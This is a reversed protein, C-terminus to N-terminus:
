LLFWVRKYEQLQINKENLRRCAYTLEKKFPYDPPHQLVLTSYDGYTKISANLGYFREKMKALSTEKYAPPLFYFSVLLNLAELYSILVEELGFSSPQTLADLEKELRGAQEAYEIKRSFDQFTTEFNPWNGLYVSVSNDLSSNDLSNNTLIVLRVEGGASSKLACGKLSVTEEEQSRSLEVVAPAVYYDEKLAGFYLPRFDGALSIKKLGSFQWPWLGFLFHDKRGAPVKIEEPENLDPGLLTFSSVRAKGSMVSQLFGFFEKTPVDYGPAMFFALPLGKQAYLDALVRAQAITTSLRYPIKGEPWATHLQGDLYIAKSDSLLVKISRVSRARSILEKVTGSSLSKKQLKGASSIVKEDQPPRSILPWLGSDLQASGSAGFLPLYLLYELAAQIDASPLDVDKSIEEALYGTGGILRDASKLLMAGLGRGFSENRRLKHRRGVPMSLGGSKLVDNVSSKSIHTKYKKEVLDAIARCGLRPNNKRTSLIFDTVDPNLKYIVGM